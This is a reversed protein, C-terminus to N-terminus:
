KINKIINKIIRNGSKGGSSMNILIDKSKLNQHYYSIIDKEIPLYHFKIGLQNQFDKATTRQDKPIEKKYGIQSVVVESALNFASISKTM